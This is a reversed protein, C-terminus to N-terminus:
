DHRPPLRHTTITGGPRWTIRLEADGDHGMCDLYDRIMLEVEDATEAQTHGVYPIAIEYNISSDRSPQHTAIATYYESM